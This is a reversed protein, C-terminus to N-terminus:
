RVMVWALQVGDDNARAIDICRDIYYRASDSIYFEYERHLMEYIGFSENSGINELQLEAKISAIRNKKENEYLESDAISEDLVHLLSDIKPSAFISTTFEFLLIIVFLYRM